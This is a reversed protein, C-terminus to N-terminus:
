SRGQRAAANARRHSRGGLGQRRDMWSVVLTHPITLGFVVALSVGALAPASATDVAVLVGVGAVGALALVTCPAADRALDRVARPPQELAALRAVHRVSHWAVFYTGIALVPPSIWVFVALGVLEILDRGRGAPGDRWSAIIAAAVAAALVLVALIEGGGRPALDLGGAGFPALAGHLARQFAGPHAVIPGLVPILGRAAIISGYSLADRPRARGLGFVLFWVEGQGWHLAALVLLAIVAVGPDLLWLAVGAAALLVYGVLFATLAAAGIPRGLVRGPVLHDIAGHPMGVVVLGALLPLWLVLQVASPAFVAGVAAVALAIYSGRRWRSSLVPGQGSARRTGTTGRLDDVQVPRLRLSSMNLHNGAV